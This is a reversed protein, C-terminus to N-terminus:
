AFDPLLSTFQMMVLFVPFSCSDWNSEHIQIRTGILYVLGTRCYIIRWPVSKAWPPVNLWLVIYWRRHGDFIYHICARVHALACCDASYVFTMCRIICSCVVLRSPCPRCLIRSWKLGPETICKRYPIIHKGKYCVLNCFLSVLECQNIPFVIISLANYERWEMFSTKVKYLNAHSMPTCSREM